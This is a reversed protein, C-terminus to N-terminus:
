VTVRATRNGRFKVWLSPAITNGSIVTGDPFRAFHRGDHHSFTAIGGGAKRMFIRVKDVFVDFPM